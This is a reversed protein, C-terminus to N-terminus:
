TAVAMPKSIEKRREPKGAPEPQPKPIPPQPNGDSKAISSKFSRPKGINAIKRAPKVTKDSPEEANEATFTQRTAEVPTTAASSVESVDPETGNAASAPKKIQQQINLPLPMNFYHYFCKPTVAKGSPSQGAATGKYQAKITLGLEKCPVCLDDNM